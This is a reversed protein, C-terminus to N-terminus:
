RAGIHRRAACSSPFVDALSFGAAVRVGEELRELFADRDRIQDGLVARVIVDTVYTSLLASVNVPDDYWSAKAVSAVSAPPRPRAGRASPM